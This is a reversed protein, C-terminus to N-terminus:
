GVAGTLDDPVDRELVARQDADDHAARDPRVPLGELGVVRDDQRCTSLPDDPDVIVHIGREPALEHRTPLSTTTFSPTSAGSNGPRASEPSNMRSYAASSSSQPTSDM